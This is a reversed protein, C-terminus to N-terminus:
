GKGDGEIEDLADSAEDIWDKAYGLAEKARALPEGEAQERRVRAEVVARQGSTVPPPKPATRDTTRDTTRDSM